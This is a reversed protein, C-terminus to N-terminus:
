AAVQGKELFRDLDEQTYRISRKGVRTYAPGQKLYRWQNLTATAVKLYEAAESTTLLQM